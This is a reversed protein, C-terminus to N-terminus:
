LAPDRVDLLVFGPDDPAIAELVDWCDTEFV